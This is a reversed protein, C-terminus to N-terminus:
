QLYMGVAEKALKWLDKNGKMMVKLLTRAERMYVRAFSPDHQVIDTTNDIIDAYKITQADASIKAMRATEKAKRQDRNLHPYDEKIYVDTLEVVLKLTKEAQGYSMVGRLFEFMEEKSIPTDELVDHLLAAALVNLKDSYARCLEMVRVPHVIYKEKSYKRMQDGHAEEAFAQIAKLTEEM